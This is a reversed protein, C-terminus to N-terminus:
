RCPGMRQDLIAMAAVFEDFEELKEIVRRDLQDEVIMGRMDGFLGSRPEGALGRVPEFEGECGLM